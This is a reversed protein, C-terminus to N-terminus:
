YKIVGTARQVEIKSTLVEYLANYYIIQSTRLDTEATTVELYTKVGSRYQLNVVDYVEQALQLNSKSAAYATLAASYTGLAATYETNVSNRLSIIDLETQKLQRKAIELEHKRKGGQFIPLALTLGAYSNPFSNNYLKNFSDNLYNSIYAGNASLSPLFAWKNYSINAMQLKRQTQLIQFEIRQTYDLLSSTDLFIDKELEASDYLIHLPAPPPYNMLSKLTELKARLQQEYIAKQAVANNLSITARKYDTKDVTGADYQAKADKLSRDLRLINAIQVKIQQETVLVDYFAKYVDVSLDIRARSTQQMAQLRIDKKTRSAFIVDRNFITQTGLFQIASTNNVGIKVTNGAFVTTPLQFNHQFLYNFNIQPYWESLKSKIELDVIEQDIVSQQIFTNNKLAYQIVNPLTAEALLSDNKPQAKVIIGTALAYIFIGARISKAITM